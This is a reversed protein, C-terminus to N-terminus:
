RGETTDEIVRTVTELTFMVRLASADARLGVVPTGQAARIDSVTTGDLARLFDSQAATVSGEDQLSVLVRIGGEQGARELLCDSYAPTGVE